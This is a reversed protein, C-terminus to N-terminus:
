YVVKEAIRIAEQRLAAERAIRDRDAQPIPTSNRGGGSPFNMQSTDGFDFTPPRGSDRFTKEDTGPRVPGKRKRPAM